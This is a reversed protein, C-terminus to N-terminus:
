DVLKLYGNKPEYIYNIKILQEIFKEFEIEDLYDLQNRLDDKSVM